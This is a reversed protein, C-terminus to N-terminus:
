ETELAPMPIVTGDKLLVHDIESLAIPISFMGHGSTNGFGGVTNGSLPLTGGDKMVIDGCVGAVPNEVEEYQCIVGLSSIRISTIKTEVEVEADHNEGGSTMVYDVPQDLLEVVPTNIEDLTIEFDWIGEALQEVPWLKEAEEDTVLGLKPAFGYKEELEKSYAANIYEAYLNEIHIRVTDGDTFQVNDASMLYVINHTNSKGDGDDSMNWTMGYGLGNVEWSSNEGLWIVPAAPDYGEKVTRDLYVNEPATIGVSIFLNYGDTLISKVEMTFGNCTQSLSIDQVNEDIIEMQAQSLPEESENTFYTAFWSRITESATVSVALMSVIIAAILLNRTIRTPKKNMMKDEKAIHSSVSLESRLLRSEEVSGIALFLDEHKM